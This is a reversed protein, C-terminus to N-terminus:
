VAMKMFSGFLDYLIMTVREPAKPHLVFIKENDDIDLTRRFEIVEKSTMPTASLFVHVVPIDKSKRLIRKAKSIEDLAASDSENNWLVILGMVNHSFAKWLPRMNKACPLAFFYVQSAEIITINGLEGFSDEDFSDNLHIDPNANFEEITTCVDIFSATLEADTSLVFVKASTVDDVGKWYKMLGERVKIAQHPTFLKGSYGTKKTGSKKKAVKVEELIDQSILESIHQYAELDPFSSNEIIDAVKEHTDLLYLIDCKVPNLDSPLQALPIKINLVSEDDPFEGKLRNLEDYQRLGEMILNNTSSSFQSKMKVLLPHFEFRGEHWSLLRFLAKRNELLGLSANLLVGDNLYIKGEPGGGEPFIKLIGGRRNITLIQLLDSLSLFLLNGEIVKKESINGSKVKSRLISREIKNLVESKNFPKLLFDDMERRFGRITIRKSSMFLFPIHKTFPNVKLIQLVREGSIVPLDADAIIVDIAEKIALNLTNAGNKALFVTFGKSKLFTGFDKLLVNNSDALLIQESM